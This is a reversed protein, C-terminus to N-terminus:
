VKSDDRQMSSSACLERYLAVLRAGCKKWTRLTKRRKRQTAMGVGEIKSSRLSSSISPARFVSELFRHRAPVRVHHIPVTNKVRASLPPFFAFPPSLNLPKQITATSLSYKKNRGVMSINESLYIINYYLNFFFNLIKTEYSFSFLPFPLSKPSYFFPKKTQFINEM